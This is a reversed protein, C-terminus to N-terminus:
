AAGATPLKMVVPPRPGSPAGTRSAKLIVAVQHEDVSLNQGSGGQKTNWRVILEEGGKCNFPTALILPPRCDVPSYNGALSYGEGIMDMDGLATDHIARMLLGKMDKDWLTERERTIRLYQTLLFDTGDNEKPAFDSALIGVLEMEGSAPVPEGFPFDPFDAPTVAHDLVTEGEKNINGNADGYNVYLFKDSEPGNEMDATVDAPDWIEYLVVIVDDGGVATAEVEVRFKCGQPVPYGNFIGLSGLLGLLTKQIRIGSALEGVRRYISDATLSGIMNAAVVEVGGANQLCAFDSVDGTARNSTIWDHAHQGRGSSFPLHSGLVGGARFYGVSSREIKVTAFKGSNFNLMIDRVVFAEGTEAKLELAGQGVTQAVMLPERQM